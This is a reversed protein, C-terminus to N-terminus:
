WEIVWCIVMLKSILSLLMAYKFLPLHSLEVIVSFLFYYYVRDPGYLQCLKRTKTDKRGSDPKLMFM